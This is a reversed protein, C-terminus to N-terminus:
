ADAARPGTNHWIWFFFIATTIIPSVLTLIAVWRPKELKSYLRWYHVTLFVWSAVWTIIFLVLLWTNPYGLIRLVNAGVVGILAATLGSWLQIWESKTLQQSTM